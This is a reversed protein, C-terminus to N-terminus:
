MVKIKVNFEWVSGPILVFQIQTPDMMWAKGTVLSSYGIYHDGAGM